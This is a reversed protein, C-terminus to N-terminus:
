EGLLEKLLGYKRAVRICANDHETQGHGINWFEQLIDKAVKKAIKEEDTKNFAEVIQQIEEASRDGLDFKLAIKDKKRYGANYIAEAIKPSVCNNFDDEGREGYCCAGHVRIVECANQYIINDLEAIARQKDSKM